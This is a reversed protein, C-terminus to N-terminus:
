DGKKQLIILKAATLEIQDNEAINSIWNEFNERSSFELYNLAQDIWLFDVKKLIKEIKMKRTDNAEWETRSPFPKVPYFEKVFRKQDPYYKGPLKSIKALEILIEEMRESTVQFYNMLESLEVVSGPRMKKSLPESFYNLIRSKYKQLSETNNKLQQYVLICQNRLWDNLDDELWNEHLNVSIDELRKSNELTSNIASISNIKIINSINKDSEICKARLNELLDYLQKRQTTKVHTKFSYHCIAAIIREPTVTILTVILFNIGYQIVIPANNRVSLRIANLNTFGTIILVLIIVVYFVYPIWRVIDIASYNLVEMDTIKKNRAKGIRNVIEYPDIMVLGLTCWFILHAAMFMTVQGLDYMYHNWGPIAITTFDVGVVTGWMYMIYICLFLHILIFPIKLYAWGNRSLGKIPINFSSEKM